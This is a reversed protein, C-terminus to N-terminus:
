PVPGKVSASYQSLPLAPLHCFAWIFPLRSGPSAKSFCAYKSSLVYLRIDTRMRNIKLLFTLEQCTVLDKRWARETSRVTKMGRNLGVRMAYRHICSLQSSLLVMLVRRYLDVLAPTLTGFSFHAKLSFWLMCIAYSLRLRLLLASGENGRKSQRKRRRRNWKGKRPRIM